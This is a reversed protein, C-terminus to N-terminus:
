CFFNNVYYVALIQLVFIVPVGLMFKLHKTKHHFIRMGLFAGISGGVVALLLLTTESIRWAGRKARQKDLGYVIFTITNILLLYIFIIRVAM